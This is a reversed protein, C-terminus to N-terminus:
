VVVVYDVLLVDIFFFDCCAHCVEGEGEFFEGSFDEVYDVDKAIEFLVFL